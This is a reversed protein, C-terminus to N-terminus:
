IYVQWGEIIKAGGSGAKEAPGLMMFMKQITPNRCVSEGGEACPFRIQEM